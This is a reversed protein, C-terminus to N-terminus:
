SALPTESSSAESSSACRAAFCASSPLQSPLFAREILRDFPTPPFSALPSALGQPLLRFIICLPMRTIWHLRFDICLLARPPFPAGLVAATSPPAGEAGSDTNTMQQPPEGLLDLTPAAGAAQGEASAEGGEMRQSRRCPPPVREAVPSTRIDVM